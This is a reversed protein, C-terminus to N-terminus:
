RPQALFKADMGRLRAAMIKMVEISFFPTNQVLFLFHKRDIFAIRSEELTVATASRPAEEVLAMEGFIENPGCVAIPREKVRLEVRGAQIAYLTDGPDGERFLVTGPPIVKAEAHRFIEM